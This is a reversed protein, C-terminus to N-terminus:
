AIFKRLHKWVLTKDYLADERAQLEAPSFQGNRGKHMTGFPVELVEEIIAADEHREPDDSKKWDNTIKESTRMVLDEVIRGVLAKNKQYLDHFLITAALIPCLALATATFTYGALFCGAGVALTLIGAFIMAAYCAVRKNSADKAEQSYSYRPNHIDSWSRYEASPTKISHIMPGLRILAQKLFLPNETKLSIFL